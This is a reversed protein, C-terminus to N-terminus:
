RVDVFNRSTAFKIFAGEVNSLGATTRRTQFLQGRSMFQHGRFTTLDAIPGLCVDFSRM